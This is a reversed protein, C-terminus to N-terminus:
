NESPARCKQGQAVDLIPVKAHHLPYCAERAVSLLDSYIYCIKIHTHAYSYKKFIYIYTIM